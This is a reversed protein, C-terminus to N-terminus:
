AETIRGKELTIFKPNCCAFREPQHTAVMVATGSRNINQLVEVVEASTSSDLNSVPEDALVVFPENVLGRAIAVRQQEGLSLHDPNDHLKHSLGVQAMARFARSKPKGPLNRECAAAIRVNDLASRDNLLRLDQFVIGLYSRWTPIDRPKLRSSRMRELFIEGSEPTLERSIIKFLTTKGAGTRGVLLIFEGQSLEFTLDEVGAGNAPYHYTVNLLKIM